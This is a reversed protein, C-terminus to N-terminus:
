AMCYRKAYQVSCPQSLEAETRETKLVSWLEIAEQLTGSQNEISAYTKDLHTHIDIMGPLLVHGALDWEQKATQSLSSDVLAIKGDHIAIDQLPQDDAIRANRLIWDMM